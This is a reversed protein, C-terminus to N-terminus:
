LQLLHPQTLYSRFAQCFLAATAEDGVRRDVSIRATMVTAVRPPAGAGIGPLVTPVGGGVALIVAQLHAHRNRQTGQRQVQMLLPLQANANVLRGLRVTRLNSCKRKKIKRDASEEFM